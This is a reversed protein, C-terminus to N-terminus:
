PPTEFAVAGDAAIFGRLDAAATVPGAEKADM